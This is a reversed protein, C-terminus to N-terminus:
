DGGLAKRLAPPIRTPKGGALFAIRVDAEVQTAGGRVVSQKLLISAGAVEGPRTVVEIVEDIRAPMFFEIKMSRVVFLFGPAEAATEAFLEGQKIGLLRIFDSRGREMFRLYSAHYVVGSFDTDEYYIRIPLRHSGEVISGSLHLWEDESARV